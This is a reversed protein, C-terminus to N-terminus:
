MEKSHLYIHVGNTVVRQHTAIYLFYGQARLRDLHFLYVQISHFSLRLGM